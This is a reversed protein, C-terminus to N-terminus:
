KLQVEYIAVGIKYDSKVTLRLHSCKPADLVLDNWNPEKGTPEPLTVDLSKVIVDGLLADVRM